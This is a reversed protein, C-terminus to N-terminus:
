SSVQADDIKWQDGNKVFTIKLPVAQVQSGSSTSVKVDLEMTVAATDDAPAVSYTDLRMKCGTISVGGSNFNAKMANAYDTQSGIAQQRRASFDGYAATYNKAALATCFNQGVALPEVDTGQLSEDVANIKWTDGEKILSIGGAFAKNRTIKASLDAATNNITLSFGAAPASEVSCDKIKGDLQDHLSNAQTYQTQNIAAKYASSLMAYAGTYNQAKLDQCYDNAAAVPIAAESSQYAMLVVAGGVLLLVLVVAVSLGILLGRRSKPAPASSPERSDGYRRGSSPDSLPRQAAGYSPPQRRDYSDPRGGGYSPTAGYGQDSQPPYNPYGGPYGPTNSSM